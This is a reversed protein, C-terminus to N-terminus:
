DELLKLANLRSIKLYAEYSIKNNLVADDLFSALKLMPHDINEPSCIDTDYYLRDQFEELFEYAFEPDRAIANYVSNASLDGCLNPYKCM